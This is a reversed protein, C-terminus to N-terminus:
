RTVMTHWPGEPVLTVDVHRWSIVSSGAVNLCDRMAPSLDIGAKEGFANQPNKADGFVYAFDTDFFPGTDQWQGFCSVDLARVEIWRNKLISKESPGPYWPIRVAEPKERGEDDRDNYPLAVYFPNERPTFACPHSGSRCAPDDVGGFSKEWEEDWASAANHIFGNDSGAGEGVWFVTAIAEKWASRYATPRPEVVSLPAAIGSTTAVVIEPEKVEEVVAGLAGHPIESTTEMKSVVEPVRLVLSPKAFFGVAVICAVM